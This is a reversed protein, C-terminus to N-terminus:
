IRSRTRCRLLKWSEIRLHTDERQNKSKTRIKMDRFNFRINKVIDVSLVFNWKLFVYDFAVSIILLIIYWLLSSYWYFYTLHATMVGLSWERAAQRSTLCYVFLTSFSASVFVFILCSLSASFFTLYKTSYISYAGFSRSTSTAYNMETDVTDIVLFWLHCVFSEENFFFVFSYSVSMTYSSSIEMSWFETNNLASGIPSFCIVAVSVLSVSIIRWWRWLVRLELRLM